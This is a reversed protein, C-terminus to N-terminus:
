NFYCPVFSVRILSRNHNSTLGQKPALKLSAKLNKQVSTNFLILGIAYVIHSIATHTVEYLKGISLSLCSFIILPFKTCYNARETHFLGSRSIEIAPFIRIFRNQNDHPHICFPEVSRSWQTCVVM